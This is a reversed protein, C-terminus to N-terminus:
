ANMGKEALGTLNAIVMALEEPEVPKPVHFQFGASLARVRDSAREFATLAVAPIRGGEEPPLQRVRRILMYGDEDPMGIDSIIVDPRQGSEGQRLAALAEAVSATATVRAGFQKLLVTVLERADAEDDV